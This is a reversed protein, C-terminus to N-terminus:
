FVQGNIYIFEFGVVEHIKWDLGDPVEVIALETSPGGASAGLTETIDILDKDTRPLARIRTTIEDTSLRPSRMWGKREALRQVATASLHFYSNVAKNLVVKM